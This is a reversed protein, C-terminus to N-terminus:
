IRTKVELECSKYAFHTSWMRLHQITNYLSPTICQLTRCCHVSYFWKGMSSINSFSPLPGGVSDLCGEWSSWCEICATCFFIRSMLWSSYEQISYFRLLIMIIIIIIILLTCRIGGKVMDLTYLRYQSPLVSTGTKTWFKAWQASQAMVLCSKWQSLIDLNTSKDLFIKSWYHGRPLLM